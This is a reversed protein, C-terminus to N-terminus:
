RSSAARLTEAHPAIAEHAASCMSPLVAVAAATTLMDRVPLEALGELVRPPSLEIVQGGHRRRWADISRRAALAAARGAAASVMGRAPLSVVLVDAAPLAAVSCPSRLGGDVHLRGDVRHPAFLGPIASSAAVLDAARHDAGDLLRRRVTPTELACVTVGPITADGFIEAAFSALFGPRREPRGTMPLDHLADLPVGLRVASAVWSGASTGVLPVDDFTVGIERLGYIVAMHWATGLLAGGGLVVALPPPPDDPWSVVDPERRAARVAGVAAAAAVAATSGM